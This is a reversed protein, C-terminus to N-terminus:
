SVFEHNNPDIEVLEVFSLEAAAHEGIREKRKCPLSVEDPFTEIDEKKGSVFRTLFPTYVNWQSHTFLERDEDNLGYDPDDPTEFRLPLKGDCFTPDSTSFFSLVLDEKGCLFLTALTM